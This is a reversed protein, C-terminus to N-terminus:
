AGAAEVKYAREGLRVITDGARVTLTEWKVRGGPLIEGTVISVTNDGPTVRSRGTFWLCPDDPNHTNWNVLDACLFRVERVNLGTWTVRHELVNGRCAVCEVLLPELRRTQLHPCERQLKSRITDFYRAQVHDPTAPRCPENFYEEQMREFWPMFEAIEATLEEAEAATM